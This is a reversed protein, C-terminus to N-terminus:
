FFPVFEDPQEVGSQDVSYTHTRFFAKFKDPFKSAPSSQAASGAPASVTSTVSRGTGIGDTAGGPASTSSAQALAGRKIEFLAESLQKQNVGCLNVGAM